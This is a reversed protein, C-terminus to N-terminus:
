RAIFGVEEGEMVPEGLGVPGGAPQGIRDGRVLLRKLEPRAREARVVGVHDVEAGSEGVLVALSTPPRRASASIM